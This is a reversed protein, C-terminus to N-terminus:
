ITAIYSELAHDRRASIEEMAKLVADLTPWESSDVTYSVTWPGQRFKEFIVLRGDHTVPTALHSEIFPCAEYLGHAWIADEAEVLLDFALNAQPTLEINFEEVITEIRALHEPSLIKLTPNLPPSTLSKPWGKDRLRCIWVDRQKQLGERVQTRTIQEVEHWPQCDAATCTEALSALQENNLSAEVLPWKDGLFGKVIDLRTLVQATSAPPVIARSSLREKAESRFQNGSVVLLLILLALTLLAALLKGRLFGAEGGGEYNRRERSFRQWRLEVPTRAEFNPRATRPMPALLHM